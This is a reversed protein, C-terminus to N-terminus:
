RFRQDQRVQRRHSRVKDDHFTREARGDEDVERVLAEVPKAFMGSITAGNPHQWTFGTVLFTFRTFEKTSYAVEGPYVFHPTEDFDPETTEVGILTVDHESLFDDIFRNAENSLCDTQKM